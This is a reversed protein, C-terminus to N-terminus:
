RCDLEMTCGWSFADESPGQTVLLELDSSFQLSHIVIQWVIGGELLTAWKYPCSLIQNHIEKYRLYDMTDPKHQLLHQTLKHTAYAVKGHSANPDSVQPSPSFMNFPIGHHLLLHAANHLSGDMLTRFCQLVTM